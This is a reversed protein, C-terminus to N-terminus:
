SLHLRPDAGEDVLRKLNPLYGDPLNHDAVSGILDLPSAELGMREQTELAEFGRQRVLEQFQRFEADDLTAPAAEASELMAEAATRLSGDERFLLLRGAHRYFPEPPIRPVIDRHNVYRFFRDHFHADVFGAFTANGVLPQGFTHLAAVLDPRFKRAIRAAALTALAGGLSHGTLLIPKRTAQARLALPRVIEGWVSDLALTFGRHIGGPVGFLSRAQLTNFNLEWDERGKSGRFVLVFRSDTELVFGQTAGRTFPNRVHGLPALRLGKAELAARISDPSDHYALQSAQALSWSTTFSLGPLDLSDPLCDFPAATAASPDPSSPMSPDEAPFSLNDLDPIPPPPPRPVALSIKVM